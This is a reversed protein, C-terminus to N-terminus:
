HAPQAQEQRTGIWWVVAMGIIAGPIAEVASLLNTDSQGPITFGNILLGFFFSGLVAGVFAGVIGSWFHDPLFVTFHWLAIGVMVWVLASM